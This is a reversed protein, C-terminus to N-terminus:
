AGAGAHSNMSLNSRSADTTEEFQVDIVSSLYRGAERVTNKASETFGADMRYWLVRPEDTQWQWSYGITMTDVYYNGSEAKYQVVATM